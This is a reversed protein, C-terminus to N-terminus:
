IIRWTRVISKLTFTFDVHHTFVVGVYWRCTCIVVQKQFAIESNSKLVNSFNDDTVLGECAAEGFAITPKGMMLSEM